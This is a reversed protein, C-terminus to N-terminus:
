LFKTGSIMNNTKFWLLSSCENLLLILSKKENETPQTCFYLIYNQYLLLTYKIIHCSSRYWAQLKYQFLCKILVRFLVHTSNRTDVEDMCILTLIIVYIGTSKFRVIALERSKEHASVFQMKLLRPAAARYSHIKIRKTKSILM